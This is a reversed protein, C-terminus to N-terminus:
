TIGIIYCLLLNASLEFFWRNNNRCKPPFTPKSYAVSNFYQILLFFNRRGYFARSESARDSQISGNDWKIAFIVLPAPSSHLTSSTIPVLFRVGSRSWDVKSIKTEAYVIKRINVSLSLVFRVTWTPSSLDIKEWLHLRSRITLAISFCSSCGRRRVQLMCARPSLAYSCSTTVQRSDSYRMLSLAYLSFSFSLFLFARSTSPPLSLIGKYLDYILTRGWRRRHAVAASRFCTILPKELSECLYDWM